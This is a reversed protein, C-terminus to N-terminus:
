NVAFALHGAPLRAEHGGGIVLPQMLRTMAWHGNSHLWVAEIRASPAMLPFDIAENVILRGGEGSIAAPRIPVSMGALFSEGESFYLEAGDILVDGDVGGLAACAEGFLRVANEREVAVNRDTLALAAAQVEADRAIRDREADLAAQVDDFVPAAPGGAPAGEVGGQDQAGQDNGGQEGTGQDDAGQGEALAALRVDIAAVLTSRTKGEGEAEELARLQELQEKNLAALKPKIDDVKLGQLANVDTTEM